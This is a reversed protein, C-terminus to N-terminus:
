EAIASVAASCSGPCLDSGNCDEDIQNCNIEPAGPYVGSDADDCDTQSGVSCSPDGPDGYGDEDLDLCGVPYAVVFPSLGTTVDGCVRKAVTDVVSLLAAFVRGRGPKHLLKLKTEDFGPTGTFWSMEYPLCVRVPSTYQADTNVDVFKPADSVKFSKPVGPWYGGSYAWTRGSGTVEAFSVQAEEEVEVPEAQDKFTNDGEEGGTYGM